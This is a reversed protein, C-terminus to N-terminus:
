WIFLTSTNRNELNSDKEGAASRLIDTMRKDLKDVLQSLLFYKSPFMTNDGGVM